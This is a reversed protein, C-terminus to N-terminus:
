VKYLEPQLSSSSYVGYNMRRRKELICINESKCVYTESANILILFAHMYSSFTYIFSSTYRHCYLPFPFFDPWKRRQSQSLLHLLNNETVLCRPLLHFLVAATQLISTQRWNLCKSAVFCVTVTRLGTEKEPRLWLQCFFLSMRVFLTEWIEQTQLLHQFQCFDLFLNLYTRWIDMCGRVLLCIQLMEKCENLANSSMIFYDLM